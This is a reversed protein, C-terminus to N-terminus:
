YIWCSVIRNSLLYAGLEADDDEEPEEPIEIVEPEDVDTPEQHNTGNTNSITDSDSAITEVSPNKKPPAVFGTKFPTKEKLNQPWTKAPIKKKDM